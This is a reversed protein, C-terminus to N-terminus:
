VRFVDNLICSEVFPFLIETYKESTVGVSDLARFYSELSDHVLATDRKTRSETANKNCVGSARECLM